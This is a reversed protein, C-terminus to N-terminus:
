QIGAKQLIQGPAPTLCARGGATLSSPHVPTLPMNQQLRLLTQISIPAETSPGWLLGRGGLFGAPFLNEAGCGPLAAPSVWPQPCLASHHLCRFFHPGPCTDRPFLRQLSASPRHASCLCCGRRERQIEAASLPCCACSFTQQTVSLLFSPLLSPPAVSIVPLPSCTPGSVLGPQTQSWLPIAQTPLHLAPGPGSKARCPCHCTESGRHTHLPVRAATGTTLIIYVLDAGHSM